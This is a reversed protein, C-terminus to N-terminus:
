DIYGLARMREAIVRADGVLKTEQRDPHTAKRAPSTADHSHALCQALVQGDACRALQPDLTALLTAGADLIHLSQRGAASYTPGAACWFGHSRHAGPLSRGKKGLREHLDLRRVVPGPGGSPMLNYSYSQGSQRDLNLELVYDPARDCYPGAFLEERPVIQKVIPEGSWPDRLALLAAHLRSFIANRDNPSVQGMPERGLLNLHLAPFYNLEDSFVQTHRMDISSFRAHSELWSPAARGALSFLRQRLSPPLRFALKKLNSGAGSLGVSRFRLLGAQELARNLYVVKDSAGGSGHDSILTINVDEGASQTLVGLSQDLARYVEALPSQTGPQFPCRRAWSDPRRPSHADHAPWLYHSATDSEGFYVAFVDWATGDLLWECLQTKRSIRTKLAPALRTLWGPTDAAFEDVDDFTPTGFRAEIQAYWHEPWVFSKDTRFSVPSDWGSMFLGRELREPPWTAPFSLCAVKAGRRDLARLWTPVERVTGGTFSVRYGERSTFDFVGHRGPNVGTLFSTWNPLTAPPQVSQPAGFSGRRMLAFLNPLAAEGLEEIVDLDAGDWGIVLHKAPM